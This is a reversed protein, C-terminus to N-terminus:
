SGLYRSLQGLIDLTALKDTQKTLKQM